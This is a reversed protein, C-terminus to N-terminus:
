PDPGQQSTSTLIQGDATCHPHLAPLSTPLKAYIRAHSRTRLLSLGSGEALNALVLATALAALVDYAIVGCDRLLITALECGQIPGTAVRGIRNDRPIPTVSKETSTEQSSVRLRSATQNASLRNGIVMSTSQDTAQGYWDADRRLGGSQSTGGM